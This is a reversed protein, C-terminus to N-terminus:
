KRKRLDQLQSWGDETPAVKVSPTPVAAAQPNKKIAQHIAAKASKSEQLKRVLNNRKAAKHTAHTTKAMHEKAEIKIKSILAQQNRSKTAASARPSTGPSTAPINMPVAEARTFQKLASSKTASKEASDPGGNRGMVYATVAVASGLLALLIVIFVMLQKPSFLATSGTRLTKAEAAYGSKYERQKAKIKSGRKVQNLASMLDGIRQYRHLPEKALCKLVVNDISEGLSPDLTRMSAPEEKVQKAVTALVNDAELPAKGTLAEYMLCGVSYIDSRGDLEQGLCHEPSMYLPSGFVEGTQTLRVADASGITKAFGFDVIKVVQESSSDKLVIVNSPKIDRHIVSHEHACLLGECIQIFINLATRYELKGEQKIIDELNQGDVFDMVIYSQGNMDQGYGHVRALNPHNLEAATHVERQFRRLAVDNFAIDSLMLKIAVTEKSVLDQAKYVLGMAGQGVAKILQYRDNLIMRTPSKGAQSTSAGSNRDSLEFSKASKQGSSIQESGPLNTGALDTGLSDANTLNTGPSPCKCRSDQFLWLTMSGARGIPLNCNLCVVASQQVVQQGEREKGTM